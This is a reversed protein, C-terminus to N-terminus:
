TGDLLSNFYDLAEEPNQNKVEDTHIHLHQEAPTDKFYELLCKLADLKRHPKIMAYTHGDKTHAQKIEATARGDIDDLDHFVVGNENLHKVVGKIDFFAIRKLENLIEQLTINCHELVNSHIDAVCKKVLPNRLYKNAERLTIACRRASAQPDLDIAYQHCFYVAKADLDAEFPSKYVEVETPENLKQM